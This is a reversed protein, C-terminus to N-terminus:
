NPLIAVAKKLNFCISEMFCQALVKVKGRYRARKRLKSFTSEYPSRRQSLWRDLDRNKKKNNNKKIIGNHCSNAKLIVRSGATDYLKDAFVMCNKPCIEGLVEFDLINAATVSLKEILGYRMDITNHRKYGFWVKNKSKKGWRAEKDASYDEVNANNLTEEGDKIAKDREKWLETKTIVSSADIFKFVNGFLGKKELKKNIKNFINAINKAGIRKRLKCFYTHNPTKETLSFGCFWRVAINDKIAREMQRDSYDEWFQVLLAKFGKTIDFGTQGLDSYLKRLPKTLYKFDVIKNLRRYVHDQDVLQDLLQEETSLLLKKTEIKQKQM